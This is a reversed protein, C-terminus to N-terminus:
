SLEWVGQPSIAASKMKGTKRLETAAWRVDYQWTYFLDGSARLDKEYKQWIYKCVEVITAGKGRKSKLAEVLWDRLDFKTAM